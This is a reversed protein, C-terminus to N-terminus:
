RIRLALRHLGRLHVHEVRAPDLSVDLTITEAEDDIPLELDILLM